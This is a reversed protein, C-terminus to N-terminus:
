TGREDQICCIKGDISWVRKVTPDKKLKSILKSRMPTLDENIYVHKREEKERLKKKKRMIETKLNRRGLKVIIPKPKGGRAPLRHSVSIDSDTMVVDMDKALELMISNTNEGPVEPVGFIRLSDKRGQQELSDVEFKLLQLQRKTKKLEEQVERKRVEEAKVMETFLHKTSASVAATVAATILPQLAQVVHAIIDGIM